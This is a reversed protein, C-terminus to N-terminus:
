VEVPCTRRDRGLEVKTEVVSEVGSDGFVLRVLLGERVEPRWYQDFIFNGLSYYIHNGKYLEHEQVVHPHSGIVVEAGADIFEHALVKERTTAAVYEEGWHTYVVVTRGSQAEAQIQSVVEERKGGTWESWSVFSFPIKGIEVRLVRAGEDSALPDGFYKVGSQTLWQKTQVVGERGFNLIHNNGLNVIKINHAFLLPATSSAFTFTFNEPSRIVSGASKSPHTTVPGELNGVVVDASTLISDICSFIFDGGKEEITTRLTRDLMIDGVFIIEAHAPEPAFPAAAYSVVPSILGLLAVFLGVIFQSVALIAEM